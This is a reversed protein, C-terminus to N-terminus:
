VHARGIEEHYEKSKLDLTWEADEMNQKATNLNETATNFARLKGDRIAEDDEVLSQYVTMNFYAEDMKEKYYTVLDDNSVTDAIVATPFMTIFLAISIIISGLKKISNRYTTKKM